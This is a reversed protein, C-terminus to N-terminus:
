CNELSHHWCAQQIGQFGSRSMGSEAILDMLRFQRSNNKVTPNLTQGIRPHGAMPQVGPPGGVPLQEAGKRLSQNFELNQNARVNQHWRSRKDSM